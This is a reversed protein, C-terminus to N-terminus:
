KHAKAKKSILKLAEKAKIEEIRFKIINSILTVPIKKTLPFQVSGNANKYIAIEKAFAKVAGAGPYLGIHNKYGAFYILNKGNYTFAPMGYSIKEEATPAAKQIATRLTTLLNQVDDPFSAIYADIDVPKNMHKTNLLM